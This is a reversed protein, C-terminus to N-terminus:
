QFQGESRSINLLNKAREIYESQELENGETMNLGAATYGYDNM